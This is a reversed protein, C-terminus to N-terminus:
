WELGLRTACAQCIAPVIDVREIALKRLQEMDNVESVECSYSTSYCTDGHSLYELDRGYVTPSGPPLASFGRASPQWIWLKTPFGNCMVM